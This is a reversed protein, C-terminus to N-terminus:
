RLGDNEDSTAAINVGLGPRNEGTKRGFRRELANAIGAVGDEPPELRGRELELGHEVFTRHRLPSEGLQIALKVLEFPHGLLVDATVSAPAHTSSDALAIIVILVLFTVLLFDDVLEVLLRM